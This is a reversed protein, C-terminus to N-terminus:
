KGGKVIIYPVIMDESCLRGHTGATETAHLGHDSTIIVTGNFGEVLQKVMDDVLKIQEMSEESYPGYTTADDDISHFHTFILQNKEAIAKQTNKFVISDQAGENVSLIPEISTNLMKIDGEIYAVTKSLKQAKSFIDEGTFDMIGRGTVGNIDPTTGTIMAALGAPSIPPYVSLAQQAELGSLYSALGKEKAMELMEWGLGDLEIIMVDNGKELQYVTDSSVDTISFKPPDAIIGAVDEVETKDQAIYNVGTKTIEFFSESSKKDFKISGDRGFICIEKESSLLAEPMIQQHTTYVTVEKGNLESQGEFIRAETYGSLFLNGSTTSRYGNKDNIGVANKDDDIATSIVVISKLNKVQSSIPHFENILEWDFKKSYALHCGSLDDGKIKSSLGDEGVFILDFSTSRPKASVIIDELPMTGYVKNDKKITETRYGNMSNVDLATEVDGIVQFGPAYGENAPELKCGGTIGLTILLTMILLLNRISKKM